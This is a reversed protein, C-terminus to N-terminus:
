KEKIFEDLVRELLKCAQIRKLTPLKDLTKNLERSEYSGPNGSPCCCDREWCDPCAPGFMSM